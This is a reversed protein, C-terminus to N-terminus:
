VQFVRASVVVMACCYHVCDYNNNNVYMYLWGEMLTLHHVTFHSFITVSITGASIWLIAM